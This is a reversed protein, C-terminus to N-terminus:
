YPAFWGVPRQDTTTATGTGSLDSLVQMSIQSYIETGTLEELLEARDNVSANLFAAFNGQSLLMSRTFREFNLGTLQETLKLKENAKDTLITGDAAALEVKAAQLNGEVAGRSRRQSWFARYGQGRVSFEVEALCEATHRSM